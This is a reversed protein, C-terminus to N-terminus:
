RIPLHFEVSARRQIRLNGLPQRRQLPSTPRHEDDGELFRDCVHSQADSGTGVVLVSGGGRKLAALGQAVEADLPPSRHFKM